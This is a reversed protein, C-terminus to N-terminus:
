LNRLTQMLANIRAEFEKTQADDLNGEKMARQAKQIADVIENRLQNKEAMSLEGPAKTALQDGKNSLKDGLLDLGFATAGAVAGGVLGAPPIFLLAGAIANLLAAASYAIGAATNGNDFADVASDASSYVGYAAGAAGLGKLAKGGLPGLGTDIARNIKAASKGAKEVGSAFKELGSPQKMIRAAEKQMAKQLDADKALRSNMKKSEPDNGPVVLRETAADWVATIKTTSLMGGKTNPLTIKFKQGSAPAEGGVYWGRPPPAKVKTPKPQPSANAQPVLKELQSVLSPPAKSILKTTDAPDVRWWSAPTGTFKFAANKYTVVTDLPINALESLIQRYRAMESVVSEKKAATAQQAKALLNDLTQLSQKVQEPNMGQKTPETPKQQQPGPDTKVTINDKNAPPTSKVPETPKAPETPKTPETPKAPETPKTPETSGTKKQKWEGAKMGPRALDATTSPTIQINNEKAVKNLAAITLPGVIGDVELGQEEQFQRIVEETEKGYYGDIGYDPLADNYIEDLVKQIDAYEPSPNSKPVKLPGSTNGSNAPAVPTTDKDTRQFDAATTPMSAAAPKAPEPPIGARMDDESIIDLYKRFLATSM